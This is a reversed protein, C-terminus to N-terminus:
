FETIQCFSGLVLSSKTDIKQIHQAAM